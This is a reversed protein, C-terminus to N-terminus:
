IASDSVLHQNENSSSSCRDLIMGLIHFLDNLERRLLALTVIKDPDGRSSVEDDLDVIGENLDDLITLLLGKQRAM